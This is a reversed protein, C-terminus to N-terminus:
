VRLFIYELKEEKSASKNDFNFNDLNKEIKQIWAVIQTPHITRSM